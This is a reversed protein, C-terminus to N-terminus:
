RQIAAENKWKTALIRLFSFLIYIWCDSSSIYSFLKSLWSFFKPALNFDTRYLASFFWVCLCAFSSDFLNWVFIQISLVFFPSFAIAITQLRPEHRFSSSVNKATSATRVRRRKRSWCRQTLNNENQANGNLLHFVTQFPLWTLLPITYTGHLHFHMVIFFNAAFICRVSLM